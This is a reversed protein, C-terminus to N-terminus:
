STKTWTTSPSLSSLIGYEEANSKLHDLVLEATLAYGRANPHGDVEFFLVEGEAARSRFEPLLDLYSIGSEELAQRLPRGPDADPVGVFPLYVEEKSPQLIILLNTGNQAAISDIEQLAEVAINFERSGPRARNTKDAFEEVNLELRSGDPAEYITAQSPSREYLHARLDKWVHVLLSYLHSNSAILHVRWILSLLFNGIPQRLSLSTSKPRGFDRWVRYNGIGGSAVWREFMGADWFDNRIFFGVLLVRPHLEMGFTQYLRSYQQPGAGNLGLNIVHDQPLEKAVLAPWAQDDEVGYGFTLSDGVAVIDARDPWPWANRFGYGDTHKTARFENRAVVLSNNPEQLNGISPHAIGADGPQAKIILQLDESVLGPVFRLIGEALAAALSIGAGILLMASLPITRFFGVSYPSKLKM